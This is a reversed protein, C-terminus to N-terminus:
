IAQCGGGGRCFKAIDAMMEKETSYSDTWAGVMKYCGCAYKAGGIFNKQDVKSLIQVGSLNELKKIM